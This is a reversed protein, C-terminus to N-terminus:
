TQRGFVTPDDKRNDEKRRGGPDTSRGCDRTGWVKPDKTGSWDFNRVDGRGRRRELVRFSPSTPEPRYVVSSLYNPVNQYSDKLRVGVGTHGPGRPSDTRFWFEPVRDTAVRFWPFRSQVKEVDEGSSEQSDHSYPVLSRRCRDSRSPGNGLSLQNETARFRRVWKERSLSSSLHVM